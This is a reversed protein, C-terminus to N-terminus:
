RHERRPRANGRRAEGMVGGARAIRLRYQAERREGLARVLRLSGLHYTGAGPWLTAVAALLPAIVMLIYAAPGTVSPGFFGLVILQALQLEGKALQNGFESLAPCTIL